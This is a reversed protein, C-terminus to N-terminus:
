GLGVEREREEEKEKEKEEEEGEEEKERGESLMIRIGFQRIREGSGLVEPRLHDTTIVNITQRDNGGRLVGFQVIEARQAEVFDKAIHM